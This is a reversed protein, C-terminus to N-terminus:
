GKIRGDRAIGLRAGRWDVSQVLFSGLFVGFTLLDRLPVMWYAGGRGDGAFVVACRAALAAPVLPWLMPAAATAILAFPLPNVLGSGVYGAPDLRRITAAWRLEHAVVAALSTESCGHAITFRPVAVTLGLARVAAGIAHDDALVDRVAAFGGIRDLTARTLAITSGMCPKALGLALGVLVSPLFSTSIGQAALRSWVGADGRGHYLCTVAGVGPAELAAVVRALWDPPVDMDSDSVVIVDHQAARMMNILNSVKANSGHQTRDVVITAGIARAAPLAPDGADAVGCVIQVAGAYDQRAVSRLNAALCPEAGHLPKLVTVAPHTCPAAPERLRALLWAGGLQYAVGAFVLAALVTAIM